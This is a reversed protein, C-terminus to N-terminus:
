LVLKESVLEDLGAIKLTSFHFFAFPCVVIPLVTSASARPSPDSFVSAPPGTDGEDDDIM